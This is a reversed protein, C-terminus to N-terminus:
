NNYHHRLHLLLHESLQQVKTNLQDTQKKLEQVEANNNRNGVGLLTNLNPMEVFEGDEEDDTEFDEPNVTDMDLQAKRIIAVDNGVFESVDKRCSPCELKQGKVICLWCVWTKCQSCHHAPSPENRPIQFSCNESRVVPVECVLCSAM